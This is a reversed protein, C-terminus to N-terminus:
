VKTIEVASQMTAFGLYKYSLGHKKCVKQWAKFEGNKWNPYAHYEDFLIVSGKVLRPAIKELVYLSSEYTDCDIHCFKIPDTNAKLFSPLTKDFWGKHLTVNDRVKPLNGQLDFTGKPLHYGTWDEALGEFSDFGHLDDDQFCDAFFNISTGKFVGFELLLGTKLQAADAAFKWLLRKDEFVMANNLHKEIYDASSLVAREKLENYVNLKYPAVALMRFMKRENM